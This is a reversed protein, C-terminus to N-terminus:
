SRHTAYQQTILKLSMGVSEALPDQIALFTDGLTVEECAPEDLRKTEMDYGAESEEEEGRNSLATTDSKYVSTLQCNDVLFQRRRKTASCRIRQGHRM